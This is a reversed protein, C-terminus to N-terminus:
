AHQWVWRGRVFTVKGSNKWKTILRRAVVASLDPAVRSRHCQSALGGITFGNPSTCAWVTIKDIVESSIEVEGVKMGTM